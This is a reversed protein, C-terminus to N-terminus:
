SKSLDIGMQLPWANQSDKRQFAFACFQRGQLRAQDLILLPQEDEGLQSEEGDVISYLGYDTPNSVGVMHTLLACIEKAKASDNRLPVNKSVLHNKGSEPIVYVTLMMTSSTTSSSSKLSASTDLQTFNNPGIRILNAASSMLTLYYTAEGNSLGRLVSQPLLNWMLELDIGVWDSMKLEQIIHALQACFEEADSLSLPSNIIVKLATLLHALKDLPSISNRMQVFCERFATLTSASMNKPKSSPDLPDIQSKPRTETLHKRLSERLHVTLPGLILTHMIEELILDVNLFEDSNLKMREEKIIQHLEGEGHRVLYNKMGNIFQRINSLTSLIQSSSVHQTCENFQSVMRGFMWQDTSLQQIVYDKIKDQSKALQSKNQEEQQTNLTGMESEYVSDKDDSKNTFSLTSDLGSDVHKSKESDQSSTSNQKCKEASDKEASDDRSNNTQNLFEWSSSDM